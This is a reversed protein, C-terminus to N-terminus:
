HTPAQDLPLGALGAALPDVYGVIADLVPM